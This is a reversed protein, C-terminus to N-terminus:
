GGIVTANVVSLDEGTRRVTTRLTIFEAAKTPQIVVDVILQNTDIINQTNNTEDCIVNGDTLGAPTASKISDIQAQLESQINSRLTPTNLQFVKNDLFAAFRKHIGAILMIVNMRNLATLKKLMTKQGYIVQGQDNVRTPNINNDYLRAIDSNPDDAYNYKRLFKQRIFSGPIRGTQFGAPPLWWLGGSRNATIIAAVEISKVAEVNLKTYISDFFISRGDFIGGWRSLDGSGGVGSMKELANDIRPEDLGDFIAFCDKRKECIDLMKNMVTFNIQEFNRVFLNSIATGASILMDMSANDVNLFLDWASSLISTTNNNAPNYEWISDNLIAPDEPNFSVESFTDESLGQSESASFNFKPDSTAAELAANENIVFKWGNEVNSASDAIYLNTDGSAFPIITGSFQYNQGNFFYEVFLFINAILSGDSNLVFRSEKRNDFNTDIYKNESLGLQEFIRGVTNDIVIDEESQEILLLEISATSFDTDSTKASVIESNAFDTVDFFSTSQDEIPYRLGFVGMYNLQTGLKGTDVFLAGGNSKTLNTIRFNSEDNATVNTIQQGDSATTPIGTTNLEVEDTAYDVDTVTYVTGDVLGAVVSGTSLEYLVNDGIQFLRADPVTVRDDSSAGFGAIADKFANTDESTASILLPTTSSLTSVDYHDFKVVGRGDNLQTVENVSYYYSSGGTGISSSTDSDEPLEISQKRFSHIDSFVVVDGVSFKSARDVKISNNGVDVDTVGNFIGRVPSINLTGTTDLSVIVNRISELTGTLNIVKYSGSTIATFTIARGFSDNFKIVNGSVSAVLYDTFEAFASTGAGTISGGLFAFQVVDGASYDGPNTVTLGDTSGSIDLDSQIFETYVIPVPNGTGVTGEVLELEVDSGDPMSVTILKGPLSYTGSDNIEEFSLYDLNKSSQGSAVTKVTLSDVGSGVDDENIYIAGSTENATIASSPTYTFGKSSIISVIEVASDNFAITGTIAVTDGLQLGNPNVTNVTVDGGVSIISDIDFRQGARNSSTPDTNMIAFIPINDATTEDSDLVFNYNANNVIVEQVTYIERKGVNVFGDQINRTTAYHSINFSPDSSIENFNYEVLFTDTKLEQNNEYDEATDDDEVAEGYVRVFEGFGGNTLVERIAYLGQNYKPNNFGTGLNVDIDSTSTLEIITNFEGKSSFGVVAGTITPDTVLTVASADVLRIRTGAAGQGTIAM